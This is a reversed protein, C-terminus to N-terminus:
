YFCFYAVMGVYHSSDLADPDMSSIDNIGHDYVSEYPIKLTPEHLKMVDIEM